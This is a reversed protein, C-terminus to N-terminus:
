TSFFMWVYSNYTCFGTPKFIINYFNIHCHLVFLLMCIILLTLSILFFPNLFKTLTSRSFM